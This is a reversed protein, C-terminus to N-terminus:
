ASRTREILSALAALSSFNTVLLEEQGIKVSYSEEVFDVLEMIGLSDVVDPFLTDHEGLEGHQDYMFERQVFERVPEIDIM